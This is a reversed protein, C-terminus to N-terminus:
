TKILKKMNENQEKLLKNEERLLENQKILEQLILNDHPNSIFKKTAVSEKAKKDLDYIIGSDYPIIVNEVSRIEPPFENNENKEMIKEKIKEKAEKEGHNLFIISNKKTKTGQNYDCFIYNDVLDEPFIHSSYLETLNDINIKVKELKIERKKLQLNEVQMKEPTDYYGESLRLLKKGNTRAAQYGILWILSRENEIESDLYDLIKGESCMGSSTLIIKKRLNIQNKLKVKKSKNKKKKSNDIKSKNIFSFLKSEINESALLLKIKEMDFKKDLDNHFFKNKKINKSILKDEIHNLYIKNIKNGLPSDMIFTGRCPILRELQQRLLPNNEDFFIKLTKLKKISLQEFEDSFLKYEQLDKSGNDNIKYIGKLNNKLIIEDEKKIKKNKLNEINFIDGRIGKKIKNKLLLDFDIEKFVIYYLDFLIQQYRHQSFTPIILTDLDDSLLFDELKSKLVNIKELYLYKKKDELSGYTSELVMYEINFHPQHSEKLLFETQNDKISNGLDGSFLISKENGDEDKWSFSYSLSGLIHASRNCCFLLDEELKMLNGFRFNINSDIFYFNMKNVENKGYLNTHKISDNLINRTLDGTAKSCFIKGNFGEKYLKPILGCHDLHSHTLFLYKIDKPDFLFEKSNEFENSFGGQIMGCDVLFQTNTKKHRLWTCSGTVKNIGNIFRIEM